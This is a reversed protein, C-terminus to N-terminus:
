GLNAVDLKGFVADDLVLALYKIEQFGFSVTHLTPAVSHDMRIVQIFREIPDGIGNPTFEVKCISGLELGLVTEQDASDLDHLNVVLSEVRYEPQSYLDIYKLALDVSQTDNAGLLDTLALSRIGYEGQSSASTAVATGGGVNAITVENYLLEAGYVVGISAYPIGTNQDFTVLDSSSPAQVGDKFTVYGNKGIFFLGDETQTVKQMYTLAGTNEAVEQTGVQRLGTEIDRLELAWNVGPDSLVSDIREGTYEQTPTGAAAFQKALITFADSGTAEALSNGDPTYSLNWDDIWGTFQIATGSTIRVERRPIINGYFPSSEYTPDFTRDHNNLSISFSGAQFNAFRRGKGRNWNIGRVYNTVDVFITGGLRYSTNDLRGAVNDDLRFFPGIPSDTLDFGIEVKPTPIAM